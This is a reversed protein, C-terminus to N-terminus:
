RADRVTVTGFLQSYPPLKPNNRSAAQVGTALQSVAGDWRTDIARVRGRKIRADREAAATTKREEELKDEFSVWKAGITAWAKARRMKEAGEAEPLQAMAEAPL